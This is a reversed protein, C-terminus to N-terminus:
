IPGLSGDGSKQWFYAYPEPFILRPFHPCPLRADNIIKEATQFGPRTGPKERFYTHLLNFLFPDANELAMFTADSSARWFNVEAV